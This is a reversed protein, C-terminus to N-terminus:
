GGAMSPRINRYPDPPPSDPRNPSQVCVGQQQHADAECTGADAYICSVSRSSTLLCYHGPGAGIHWEAANPTCNGGMQTARQRCSAADAYICQPPVAQTGVCFPSAGAPSLSLGTGLGMLAIIAGSMIRGTM